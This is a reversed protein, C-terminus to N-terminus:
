RLCCHECGLFGDLNVPADSERPLVRQMQVEPSRLGTLQQETVGGDVGVHDRTREDSQRFFSIAAPRARGAAIETDSATTDVWWSSYTAATSRPVATSRCGVSWVRC